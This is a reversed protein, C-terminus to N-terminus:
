PTAGNTKEASSARISISPFDRYHLGLSAVQCFVYYAGSRPLVINAEYIGNKTHKAWQRRQWNGASFAVVNLDKLDDRPQGTATDRVAFRIRVSEGAVVQRNDLIPEIMIPKRKDKVIAGPRNEVNLDFCHVLPPVDLLFAVDYAGSNDLKLQTTYVGPSVENLSRDVVLVGRPERGYNTYHGMPAAMGERYYYITKDVPNSVVVALGSPAQDIGGALSPHEEMGFPTHGGSFDVVSLPGDNGVHDLPIMLILESGRSRVYAINMTFFIQDPEPGVDATQIIANRAVDIVEVTAENLNAVFVYRDDPMIKITGLGPKAPIHTILAHRYGDIVAIKGDVGDVVYACRSESSYVLEGASSGIKITKLTKLAQVDVVAVSATENNSIYAFASDESFAIEHHGRGIKLNAAVEQTDTDIVSVIGQVGDATREICSIWLYKGDPQMRIRTPQVGVTVRHIIEWNATDIVAVQNIHPMTVYLRRQDQSLLWDEGVGPLRIMALLQTGGYGFLPDVVTISPEDNLALVYFVNLDHEARTSLSANLFSQIKEKCTEAQTQGKGHIWAGPNVNSLPSGTTADTIEFRVEVDDGAYIADWKNKGKLPAISYTVAIGMDELHQVNRYPQNVITKSESALPSISESTKIGDAHSQRVEISGRPQTCSALLLVLSLSVAGRTIRCARSHALRNILYASQEIALHSSKIIM